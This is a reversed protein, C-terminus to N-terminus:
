AREELAAVREAAHDRAIEDPAVAALDDLSLRGEPLFRDLGRATHARWHQRRAIRPQVHQWRDALYGNMAAALDRAYTTRGHEDDPYSRPHIRECAVLFAARGHSGARPEDRDLRAAMDKNLRDLAGEERRLTDLEKSM